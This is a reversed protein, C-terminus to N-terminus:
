QVEGKRRAQFGPIMYGDRALMDGLYERAESLLARAAHYSVGMQSAVVHPDWGNHLAISAARRRREPLSEIHRLIREQLVSVNTEASVQGSKGVEDAPVEEIRRADMHRRIIRAIARRLICFFLGSPSSKPIVGDAYGSLWLDGMADQVVLQPDEGPPLQRSAYAVGKRYLRRYEFGLAREAQATATALADPPALTFSRRKSLRPM